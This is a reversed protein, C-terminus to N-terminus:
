NLYLRKVIGSSLYILQGLAFMILAIITIMSTNIILLVSMIFYFNEMPIFFYFAKRIARYAISKLNDKRDLNSKYKPDKEELPQEIIYESLLWEIINLYYGFLYSILVITLILNNNSYWNFLSFGISFFLIKINDSIIDLWAGITSKMKKLRALRGDVCDLAMSLNVSVVGLILLYHNKHYLMLSLMAVLMIVVSLLTIHNPLVKTNIFLPLLLKGLPRYFYTLFFKSTKPKEIRELLMQKADLLDDEQRIKFFCCEDLPKGKKLFVEDYLCDLYMINKTSPKPVFRLKTKINRIKLFNSLDVQCDNYVIEIIDPNMLSASYVTRELLTLGLLKTNSLEQSQSNRDTIICIKDM